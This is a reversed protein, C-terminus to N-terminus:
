PPKCDANKLVLRGKKTCHYDYWCRRGQPKPLDKIAMTRESTSEPIKVGVVIGDPFHAACAVVRGRGFCDFKSISSKSLGLETVRYHNAVDWSFSEVDKIKASCDVKEDGSGEDKVPQRQIVAEGGIGWRQINPVGGGRILGGPTTTLSQQVVHTLEHALLRRGSDIHPQYQGSGFVIDQGSTFARAGIAQAQAAARADSHIRVNSFNYGFHSDMFARTVPDLSRGGGGSSARTQTSAEPAVRSTMVRDAIRDAIRDAGQEYKDNASGIRHAQCRPAPVM